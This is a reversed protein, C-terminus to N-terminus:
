TTKKNMMMRIALIYVWTMLIDRTKICQERSLSFSVVLEGPIFVKVFYM